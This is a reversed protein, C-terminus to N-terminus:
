VSFTELICFPSATRYLQPPGFGSLAFLAAFEALSRERGRLNVMMGIDSLFSVPRNVGDGSDLVQEIVLLRKGLAMAARLRALLDLAHEDDWDHLILSLTYLEGGSPMTQFFDGAQIQLREGFEGRLEAAGAVVAAQDFLLGRVGAHRRLIAALLAGNGGGIDAVLGSGGFDYAEAVAGQRDDPGHQMFLDFLAAEDPHDRLYDFKPQHYVAEFASEGTRVAHELNAWGGWVHPSGWYRAAYHLTPVADRRLCASRPTQSICTQDVQGGADVEFIGFAALARCLRLLRDPHAGAQRALDAATQPGGALLDALGLSAAVQIMRALQFGRTLLAMEGFAPAPTAPSSM